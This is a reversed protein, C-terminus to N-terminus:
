FSFDRQGFLACFWSVATQGCSMFSRELYMWKDQLVCCKRAIRVIPGSVSDPVTTPCVSKSTLSPCRTTDPKSDLMREKWWVSFVTYRHLWLRDAGAAVTQKTESDYSMAQCHIPNNLSLWIRIEDYMWIRGPHLELLLFPRLTCFTLSGSSFNKRPPTTLFSRTLSNHWAWSINQAIHLGPVTM